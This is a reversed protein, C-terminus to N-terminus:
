RGTEAALRLHVGDGWIRRTADVLRYLSRIDARRWAISVTPRSVGLYEAAESQRLGEVLM